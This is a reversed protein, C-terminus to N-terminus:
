DRILGGLLREIERSPRSHPSHLVLPSRAQISKWVSDDYHIAGTFQADIGFYRRCARAMAEGIKIDQTNKVQNLIIKISFSKILQSLESYISGDIEEIKQLLEFPTKLKNKDKDTVIDDIMKRVTLIPVSGKIKRYFVSKLFRYANEISTPEPLLVLIGLDASIFFDLINFSTGAGLDLIINDKKLKKFQRIFRMKQAYKLNAVDLMDGSGNILSLNDVKTDILIEELSKVDKKIFQGLTKKPHSIGFCTHLNAGGLDADVLLVRKGEQALKIALNVSLLTKGTGGKGGGIAWVNKPFIDERKKLLKPSLFDFTLNKDQNQKM